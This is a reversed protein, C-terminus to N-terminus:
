GDCNRIEADGPGVRRIGDDILLSEALGSRERRSVVVVSSRCSCETVRKWCPDFPWNAGCGSKGCKRSLADREQVRLHRIRIGHAPIESNFLLKRRVRHQLNGIDAIVANM